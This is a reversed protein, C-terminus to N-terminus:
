VKEGALKEADKVRLEGSMLKPLLTDRLQMLTKTEQLNAVMRRYASGVSSMFSDLVAKVPVIAPIPRFNGKSIEQFTTGNARGIIVDLNSRAWNLVYLNPLLGDCVMAIYGQNIAVPVESVALYGIPARSSLLVTGAPLLGSSIGRLGAETIMRETDLLVPSNLNSLDKPTTWHYTGGVWYEPKETSPTSGGAIRVCDNIPQVRWGKPIKGLPSDEFSDPFLAATADDMGFPRRGEAKARVPDFDVFWSQFIARATQELTENMKRNLEIKDDLAGLISAIASRMRRSPWPVQFEAIDSRSLNPFVSGACLSLLRDLDNVIAFYLFRTDTTDSKARFAGLGRGICYEKDAWNMRGTTSGRVCFLIDGVRCLRTPATTWLQPDPHISGFETPGNLLPVGSGSNNYTDGPPSQGMEINAVDGIEQISIEQNM